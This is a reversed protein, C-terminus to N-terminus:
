AASTWRRTPILKARGAPRFRRPDAKLNRYRAGRIELLDRVSGLPLEHQRGAHAGGLLHAARVRRGPGSGSRGQLITPVSAFSQTNNITTPRGYLGFGAPFTPPAAKGLQCCRWEEGSTPARGTFACTLRHRAASTGAPLHAHSRSRPRSGRSRSTWSEGRIPQLRRDRWRPRRDGHGRHGLAPNACIDRDYPAPESEDSNLHSRGRPRRRGLGM